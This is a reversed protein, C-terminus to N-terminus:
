RDGVGRPRESFDAPHQAGVAPEQEDFVATRRLGSHRDPLIPQGREPAAAGAAAVEIAVDGRQDLAAAEPEAIDVDAIQDM